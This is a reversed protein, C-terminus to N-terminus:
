RLESRAAEIALNLTRDPEGKERSKARYRAEAIVLQDAKPLGNTHEPGLGLVDRWHLRAEAEPDHPPPLARARAGEAAQEATYAGWREMGRMAELTYFIARMNDALRDYKDCALVKLQGRRDIWWVAVGPDGAYIRQNNRSVIFKTVKWRELEREINWQETQVERDQFGSKKRYTSRAQHDPWTLRSEAVQGINTIAM